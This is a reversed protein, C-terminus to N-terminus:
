LVEYSGMSRAGDVLEDPVGLFRASRKLEEVISAEYTVSTRGSGVESAARDGGDPSRGTAIRLATLVSEMDRRKSTGPEPPNSTRSIDRSVRKLLKIINEPELDTDIEMYVDDPKATPDTM